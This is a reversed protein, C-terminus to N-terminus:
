FALLLGRFRRDILIGKVGRTAYFRGHRKRPTHISIYKVSRFMIVSLSAVRKGRNWAASTGNTWLDKCGVDSVHCGVFPTFDTQVVGHVDLSNIRKKFNRM